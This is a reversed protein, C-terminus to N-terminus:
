RASAGGNVGLRDRAWDLSEQPLVGWVEDLRHLAEDRGLRPSREQQTPSTTTSTAESPAAATGAAAM